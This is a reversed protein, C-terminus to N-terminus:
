VWPYLVPVDRVGVPVPLVCGEPGVPVPLVCGEPGVPTVPYVEWVWPHLPIFRGYGRPAYPWM